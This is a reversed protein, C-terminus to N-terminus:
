IIVLRRDDQPSLMGANYLKKDLLARQSDVDNRAQHLEELEQEASLASQTFDLLVYM